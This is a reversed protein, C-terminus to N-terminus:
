IEFHFGNWDKGTDNGVTMRMMFRDQAGNAPGTFKIEVPDTTSWNPVILKLPIAATTTGPFTRLTGMAEDLAVNYGDPATATWGFGLNVVDAVAARGGAVLAAALVIMMRGNLRAM